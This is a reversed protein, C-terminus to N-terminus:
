LLEKSAMHSQSGRARFSSSSATSTTLSDSCCPKAVSLLCADAQFARRLHTRHHLLHNRDSRTPLLSPPSFQCADAGTRWPDEMEAQRTQHPRQPCPSTRLYSFPQTRQRVRCRGLGSRHFQRQPRHGAPPAPHRRRQYSRLSGAPRAGTPPRPRGGCAVEAVQAV